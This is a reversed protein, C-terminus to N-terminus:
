KNSNYKRIQDKRIDIVLQKIEAVNDKLNKHDTKIVEVETRLSALNDNTILGRTSIYTVWGTVCFIVVAVIINRAMGNGNSREPVVDDSDDHRKKPTM